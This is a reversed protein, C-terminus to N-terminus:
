KLILFLSFVPRFVFSLNTILSTCLQNLNKSENIFSGIYSRDGITYEVGDVTGVDGVIGWERSKITVGNEDLYFVDINGKILPHKMYSEDIFQGKLGNVQEDTLVKEVILKKIRPM